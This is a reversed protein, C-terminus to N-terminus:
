IFVSTSKICSSLFEDLIKRVAYPKAFKLYADSVYVISNGISKIWMAQYLSITVSGSNSFYSVLHFGSIM